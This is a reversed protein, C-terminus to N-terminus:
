PGSRGAGAHRPQLPLRLLRSVTHRTVVWNPRDPDVTHAEGLYGDPGSHRMAGLELVSLRGEGLARNWFSETAIGWRAPFFIPAAHAIRDRRGVLHFLADLHEIGPTSALTGGLSVVRLPGDIRVALTEAAGVAMQAGGSYGLLSVAMGAGPVWGAEKLAEDVLRSIAASYIPGYRRDASVLVQFMNRANILSSLMPRRVAEPAPAAADWVRRFIRPSRVLPEGSIAYPFVARVLVGEDGLDEALADLFRQERETHTTGDITDVGGLYVVFHRPAKGSPPLLMPSGYVVTAEAVPEYDGAWWALTALPATLGAVLFAVVALVGFLITVDLIV